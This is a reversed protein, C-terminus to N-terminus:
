RRVIRSFAPLPPGGPPIAEGRPTPQGAPSEVFHFFKGHRHAYLSKFTLRKNPTLDDPLSLVVNGFDRDAASFLYVLWERRGKPGNVFALSWVDVPQDYHNTREPNVIALPARTQRARADSFPYGPDHVDGYRDVTLRFWRPRRRVESNPPVAVQYPGRGGEADDNHLLRGWQWFRRLTPENWVSDIEDLTWRLRDQMAADDALVKASNEWVRVVRPRMLWVAHRSFAGWRAAPISDDDNRITIEQWYAPKADLAADAMFVFNMADAFPSVVRDVAGPLPYAQVAAGDWFSPFPSPGFAASHHSSRWWDGFRAWGDFGFARYSVFTAGDSWDAPLRGRFAAFMANYVTSFRAGWVARAAGPAYGSLEPVDAWRVRRMEDNSLFFVRPPSPYARAAEGLQSLEGGHYGLTLSGAREGVTRWPTNSTGAPSISGLSRPAPSARFYNNPVHNAGSYTPSPDLLQEWQGGQIFAIPLGLAACAGLMQREGNLEWLSDEGPMGYVNPAPCGIWPLLRRGQRLLQYQYEPPIGAVTGVVPANVINHGKAWSAALPLPYPERAAAQEDASVLLRRGFRAVETRIESATRELGATPYAAAAMANAEAAAQAAALSFAHDLIAREEDTWRDGSLAELWRWPPGAFEVLPAASPPPPQLAGLLSALVATAVFSPM